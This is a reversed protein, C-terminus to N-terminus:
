ARSSRRRWAHSSRTARSGTWTSCTPSRARDAAPGEGRPLAGHRHTGREVADLEDAHELTIANGLITALPTRLDHSVATLFTNKMEDRPPARRARTPARGQARRSETVDSLVGQYFLPTGDDDRVQVAQDQVWVVHGDRHTCGTSSRGVRPTPRSRTSRPSSAHDRDDPHVLREWLSPDAMREEPTFGFMSEYHPSVYMPGCRKRAAVRHLDGNAGAGRADPVAARRRRAGGRDAEARHHRRARRDVPRRGIPRGTPRM